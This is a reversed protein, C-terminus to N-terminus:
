WRLAAPTIVPPEPGSPPLPTPPAVPPPAGWTPPPSGPVPPSVIVPAPPGPLGPPRPMAVGPPCPAGLPHNGPGPCEPHIYDLFDAVPATSCGSLLLVLWVARRM